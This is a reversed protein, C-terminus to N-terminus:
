KIHNQVRLVYDAPVDMYSPCKSAPSFIKIEGAIKYSFDKLSKSEWENVLQYLIEQIDKLDTNKEIGQLALYCEEQNEIAKGMSQIQM